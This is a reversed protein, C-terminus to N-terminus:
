KEKLTYTVGETYATPELSDREDDIDINGEFHIRHERPKGKEKGSTPYVIYVGDAVAQCPGPTANFIATRSPKPFEVHFPETIRVRFQSLKSEPIPRGDIIVKRGYAMDQDVDNFGRLKDIDAKPREGGEGDGTAVCILSPIVIKSGSPVDCKRVSPGSDSPSLFFMDGGMKANFKEDREGGNNLFPNESKPEKCIRVWYDIVDKESLTDLEIGNITVTM